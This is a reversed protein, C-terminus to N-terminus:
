RKTAFTGGFTPASSGADFSLNGYAYGGENVSGSPTYFAGDINGTMMYPMGDIELTGSLTTDFDAGIIAGLQLNLSGTVPTGSALKVNTIEGGIDDDIFDVYLTVEASAFETFTVGDDRYALSAAGEYVGGISPLNQVLTKSGPFIEAEIAQYEDVLAAHTVDADADTEGGCASLTLLAIGVFVGHLTPFRELTM